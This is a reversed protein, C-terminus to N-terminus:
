FNWRRNSIRVFSRRSDATVPLIKVSTFKQMARRSLECSISLQLFLKLNGIPVQDDAIFGVLHGSGHPAPLDFVGLAILQAAQKGANCAMEKQKDKSDVTVLVDVISKGCMGPIATGGVHWVECEINAKM